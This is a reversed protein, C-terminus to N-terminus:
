SLSDGQYILIGNEVLDEISSEVVRFSHVSSMKMLKSLISDRKEKRVFLRYSSGHPYMHEEPFASHLEEYPSDAEIISYASCLAIFEETKGSYMQKGKHLISLDSALSTIDKTYHSTIMCAAQHEQVYRLLYDRILIQSNLDLGLTPEDLFLIDPSYLLANTLECRMRQGLSLTRIPQRMYPTIQLTSSLNELNLTYAEKSLSYLKRTIDFSDIAPLDWWLQSRNGFVFAINKKLRNSKDFPNEKNVLIKGRDCALIGSAMKLITTKGAGNEGALGLVHGPKVEFSVNQVAQVVRCTSSSFLTNGSPKKEKIRYSKCVSQFQISGM